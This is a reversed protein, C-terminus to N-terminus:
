FSVVTDDRFCKDTVVKVKKYAKHWSEEDEPVDYFPKDGNVKSYIHCQRRVGGIGKMTSRRLVTKKEKLNTAPHSCGKSLM